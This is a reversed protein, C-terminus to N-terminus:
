IRHTEKDSSKFAWAKKLENKIKDSESKSIRTPDNEIEDRRRISFFRKVSNFEIDWILSVFATYSKSKYEVLPNKQAYGAFSVESRLGSMKNIHSIWLEDMVKLLIDRQLMTYHKIDDFKSKIKDMNDVVASALMYSIVSIDQTNKFVEYNIDKESIVEFSLFKNVESIIEAPSEDYMHKSLDTKVHKAVQNKIMDAYYDNLNDSYLIKNRKEYIIERHKNIVDDYELLHKRHDFNNWEAQKQIWTIKSTLSKSELLPEDEPISAFLPSSFVKFLMEGWFRRMIEDQPSVFFQTMGPDWQRGSRGRLQNDIRRSDHKETWIIILGWLEAVWVWLKIDTWRWAMNTAITIAWKQGANSIIEAELAHNKANLVNHKIWEKKLLDSLYESKSVSITWILIPRGSENLEKIYKVLYKFKWVESKFLLDIKDERQVLKNTPVTIVELGYVKYFEEEETKATWTMWSLKSYLRFYNQFTNSAMTTSEQQIEVWEKAELAQHLWDWFRRGPMVRWTTEDVIMVNWDVVIYDIDKQYVTRARLSNEIHHVDNYNDGTYINEVWLIKEIKRVWNETLVATKAKEDIKYDEENVLTSAIKAFKLYKDTPENSAQSIILPTRAEDILISDVEDVVAFFLSWQVQRSKDVAMNDRLYDFGLENNTAYIIDCKYAESKEEFYAWSRVIWTTLWLASYLIWMEKADRDALYDNTTVLHVTNWTLANLYLPLTAVLTKGEWTRMESINWDHLVLGWILQVDYHAMNWIYNEKKGWFYEIEFTQGKILWATYSVLAFAEFKIEELIQNIKELDEKNRFDLGEFKSKFEATKLKVDDLSLGEYSKEIERIELVMKRYKQVKKESEDWFIVKVLKELM